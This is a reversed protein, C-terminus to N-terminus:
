CCDCRVKVAYDFLEQENGFSMFMSNNANFLRSCVRKEKDLGKIKTPSGDCGAYWATNRTCALGQCKCRNKDVSAANCVISDSQYTFSGPLNFCKVCNPGTCKSENACCIDPTEVCENIDVCDIVVQTANDRIIRYGETRPVYPFTVNDCRVNMQNGSAILKPPLPEGDGCERV